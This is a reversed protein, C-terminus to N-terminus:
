KIVGLVDAFTVFLYEKNNIFLKDEGYRRFAIVDGVSMPVPQKGEGVVVVKGTEQTKEHVYEIAGSTRVDVLEIVVVKKAPIIKSSTEKPSMNNNDTIM